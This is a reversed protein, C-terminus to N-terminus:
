ATALRYDDIRTRIYYRVCDPAHDGEKKPKERELAAKNENWVYSEMYKRVNRCRKHIRLRKRSLMTMTRRIGDAVENNADIVWVGRMVLEARFSAAEPPVIVGPWARRDPGFGPWEGLGNILDDAYEGDTKQRQQLRSDWYYERELWVTQGDDYFDCYCQANSTGYDISVWREAHGGRALLGQPRLSDDYYVNETLVDRYIAGEALVWEGLIFRRYFVGVYSRRVFEKYEPPINPNDDLTWTEYWLDKGLGYEYRESDLVEVKLPHYPSEPNTTGYLRSGRPSMRSILMNLFTHPMLSMEDCLAAGVTMGRIARESGEDHAGIIDWKVSNFVLLEGSQRNYTWNEEGVIERLDELMNRQISQKSVGTIIRHGGIQYGCLQIFKILTAWTKASRVAGMIINIKADESPWRRVFRQPRPGFPLIKPAQAASRDEILPVASSATLTPM